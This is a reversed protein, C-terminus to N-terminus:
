FRKPQASQTRSALSRGTNYRFDFEALYRHLHAESISHYVGTIGRKFISFFNESINISVTSGTTRDFYAYEDRSRDVAHHSSFERGLKTYINSKDTMLASKRSANAVM